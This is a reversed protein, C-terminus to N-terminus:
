FCPFTTRQKLGANLYCPIKRFGEAHASSFIHCRLGESPADRHHKRLRPMNLDKRRRLKKRAIKKKEPSPLIDNTLQNTRPSCKRSCRALFLPRTLLHFASRCTHTLTDKAYNSYENIYTRDPVFFARGSFVNVIWYVRQSQWCNCM